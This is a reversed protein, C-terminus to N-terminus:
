YRYPDEHQRNQLRRKLADQLDDLRIRVGFSYGRPFSRFVLYPEFCRVAQAIGFEHDYIKHGRTDYKELLSIKTPGVLLDGRVNLSHMSFLRDAEFAPTGWEYAPNYALGFRLEKTPRAVLGLQAHLWGYASRQNLFNETDFRFDTYLRPLLRIEPPMYAGSFIGRNQFPGGEERIRQGRVQFYAGAGGGFTHADEFVVDIAKTFMPNDPRAVAGENYTAGVSVSMRRNGVYTREALPSSVFANEFYSYSFREDLDSRPVFGGPASLPSLLSRSLQIDESPHIGHRVSIGANIATQDDLLFSPSWSLGFGRSKAYSVGPLSLGGGRRDQSVRYSKLTILKHGLLFFTPHSAVGNGNGDFVVKPAYAGIVPAGEYTCPTGFVNTLTWGTPEVDVTSATLMVGHAHVVINQGAGTRKTWNFTLSDASITGDPDVLLVHGEAQGHRNEPDLYLTLKDTTVVESAYTAKVHGEFTIVRGAVDIHKHEWQVVLDKDIQETTPGQHAVAKPPISTLLLGPM